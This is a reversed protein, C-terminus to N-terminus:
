EVIGQQRYFKMLRREYSSPSENDKMDPLKPKKGSPKSGNKTNTTQLKKGKSALAQAKGAKTKQTKDANVKSAEEGIAARVSIALAKERDEWSASRAGPNEAFIEVARRRVKPNKVPGLHNQILRDTQQEEYALALPRILHSVKQLLQSEVAELFGAPGKKALLIQMNRHRENLKQAKARQEPTLTAALQNVQEPTGFMAINAVQDPLDAFEDSPPPPAPPAQPQNQREIYTLLRENQERYRALEVDRPDQEETESEDDEETTETETDGLEDDSDSDEDSDEIGENGEDGDSDSETEVETDEDAISEGSHEPDTQSEEDESLEEENDEIQPLEETTPGSLTKKGTVHVGDTTAGKMFTQLRPDM